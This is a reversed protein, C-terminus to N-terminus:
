KSVTYMNYTKKEFFCEVIIDSHGGLAIWRFNACKRLSYIRMISDKSGVALLKSDSSWSICTTEMTAGHFSKEIIFPNYDGTRLGPANFIFVLVYFTPFNNILFINFNQMHCYVICVVAEKVFQLTSEM